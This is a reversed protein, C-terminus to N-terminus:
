NISRPARTIYNPPTLALLRKDAVNLKHFISYEKKKHSPGFWFQMFLKTVGLLAGHMYDISTGRIIDYDPLLMLASPGKVGNIPKKDLSNIVSKANEVTQFHTRAPGTPNNLQFPFCRVNGSKETSAAEGKQLCKPCGYFANSSQFNLVTAKAPLDCTGCLVTAHLYINNIIHVGNDKIDNLTEMQPTLFSLINPHSDGYWLGSILINERKVRDLFLFNTSPTSCQGYLRNPQNSFLFEMRTGYFPFTILFQCSAMIKFFLNTFPKERKLSPLFSQLQREM